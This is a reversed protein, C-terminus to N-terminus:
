SPPDLLVNFSSRDINSGCVIVGVRRGSLRQKLPGCLAATAAAGAPEVVLKVDDFLLQMAQRLEQDSVQVLQDVNNRVLDFSLPTTFPPALSDAITDSDYMSLPHGAELSAQMIAAGEPEVGYVEIEPRLLKAVGAMGSILGGGGVAIILVDLNPVQHLWELSVTATGLSTNIGEFPHVFVRGETKQLEEARAFALMGNEAIEVEAGYSRAAAIRFPNASKLMVVKASMGLRQAAWSVAIAHNGASVATVGQGRETANLNLMVNLAGRAKFTGTRQLLELKLSVETADGICQALRGSQWAHVPTTIIYPDICERTNRVAALSFGQTM